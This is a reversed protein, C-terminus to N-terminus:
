CSCSACALAIRRTGERNPEMLEAETSAGLKAASHYVVHQGGVASSIAATDNLDGSVLRVGRTALPAAREPSRVLATVNDGRELLRDILHGGVLGTAGTVMVNM